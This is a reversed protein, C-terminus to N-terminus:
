ITSQQNYIKSLNNLKQHIEHITFDIEEETTFRGLSFRIASAALKDTLGMAKL